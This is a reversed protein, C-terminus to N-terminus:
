FAVLRVACGSSRTVYGVEPEVGFNGSNYGFMVATALEYNEPYSDDDFSSRSWYYGSENVYRVNYGDRSGAAPLFVAGAAEMAAWEEEDYRNSNWAATLLFADNVGAVPEVGLPHVYYDPFLIMGHTTGLLYAMAFRANEVGSITSAERHWVLDAWECRPENNSYYSTLTTLNMIGMNVYAGWDPNKVEEGLVNGYDEATESSTIGYEAVGTLTSSYGVWGFLDVTGTGNIFPPTDTLLINGSTAGIYDYQNEAFGWTWSNGDYTAQLNGKTFYVDQNIIYFDGPLVGPDLLAQDMEVKIPYIHNAEITKPNTIKSSWRTEADNYVNFALKEDDVPKMAVYITNQASPTIYYGNTGDAVYLRTIDNTFDSSKGYNWITFKAIALQNELTGAPLEAGATLTGDFIALDYQSAITALTGDQTGLAGYNVNADANVESDTAVTAAAMSAPYIYRVAESAKPNTLTVTFTASNGYEGAPLVESEAKVTENSTNKYIVAIKDGTAFTKVGDDTLAKTESSFGVTTTLTVINDQEPESPTEVEAQVKSCGLIIIGIAFLAALSIIRTQKMTKKMKFNMM